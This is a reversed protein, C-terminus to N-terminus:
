RVIKDIDTKVSEDLFKSGDKFARAYRAVTDKKFSSHIKRAFIGSEIQYDPGLLVTSFRYCVYAYIDKSTSQWEYYLGNVSKIYGASQLRSYIIQAEPSSFLNEAGGQKESSVNVDPKHNDSNDIPEETDKENNKGGYRELFKAESILNMSELTKAISQPTLGQYKSHFDFEGDPCDTLYYLYAMSSMKLSVEFYSDVTTIFHQECGFGEETDEKYERADNWFTSLTGLTAELQFEKMPDPISCLDKEFASMASKIYAKRARHGKTVINDFVEDGDSWIGLRAYCQLQHQLRELVKFEEM